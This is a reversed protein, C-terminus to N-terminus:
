LSDIKVGLVRAFTDIVQLLVEDQNAGADIESMQSFDMSEFCAEVKRQYDEQEFSNCGGERTSEIRRVRVEWPAKFYLILDPEPAFEENLSQIYELDIGFAGQYAMTSIYYRDICVFKGAELAPIINQEVNVKRDEVFLRLEEAPNRVDGQTIARRLEKGIPGDTPEKLYVANKNQANLLKVIRGAITSKGSGDGGEFAILLGKQNDMKKVM